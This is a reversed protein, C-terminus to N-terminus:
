MSRPLFRKGVRFSAKEFHPQEAAEPLALAIQRFASVSIM